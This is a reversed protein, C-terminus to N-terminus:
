KQGVRLVAKEDGGRLATERESGVGPGERDRRTYIERKSFKSSLKECPRLDDESQFPKGGGLRPHHLQRFMPPRTERSQGISSLPSSEQEGRGQGKRKANGSKEGWIV